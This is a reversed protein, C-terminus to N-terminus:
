AGKGRFMAVVRGPPFFAAIGWGLLAALILKKNPM